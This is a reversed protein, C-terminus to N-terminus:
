EAIVLLVTSGEPVLTDADPVIRVVTGPPQGTNPKQRFAVTLGADTLQAAAATSDMGYVNPVAVESPTPSPSPSPTPTGSSVVITVSSGKPVKTDAVPDQRIVSGSPVTTSAETTVPSGLLLGAGDLATQADTQSLGTLDPVAVEPKGSSVYYTVTDGRKVDTGAAPDQRFVRGVAVSANKGKKQVGTLDNARLWDEVQSARQDTFDILTVTESGQSVWIDVTAGERLKTGAAPAQRSVFGAAFDDSYEEQVGAEFGDKELARVASAKSQGVVGPVAVKDGSMAWWLGIAAAAIVALLM